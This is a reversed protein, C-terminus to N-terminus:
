AGGIALHGTSGQREAVRRVSEVLSLRRDNLAQGARSQAPAGAIQRGIAQRVFGALSKVSYGTPTWDILGRAIDNAAVGDMVLRYVERGVEVVQGSPLPRGVWAQWKTMIEDRMARWEQVTTHGSLVDATLHPLAAPQPNESSTTGTYPVYAGGTDEEPPASHGSGSPALTAEESHALTDEECTLGSPSLNDEESALGRALVQEETSFPRPGAGDLALITYDSTRVFGDMRRVRVLFGDQALRTLHRSVSRVSCECEDALTAVGVFTFHRGDADAPSERGANGPGAYDALCMLLLKRIPDGTKQQKAWNLAQASVAPLGMYPDYCAVDRCRPTAPVYRGLPM